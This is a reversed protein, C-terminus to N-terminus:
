RLHDLRPVPRRLREHCEFLSELTVAIDALASDERARGVIQIGFPLGTPGLGCPIVVAPNTILTVGYSIAEWHLYNALSKGNIHSPYPVDHGFPVVSAAPTILLDFREFFRQARRYAKTQEGIARAVERASLGLARELDVRVNPAILKPDREYTAGYAHVLELARLALFTRDADGLDPAAAAVERFCGGFAAAKERFSARVRDDMPAFGLDESIAVRLRSLDVFTPPGALGPQDPAALPDFVARSMMVGLLLRADKAERGMPGEVNFPSWGFARKENAVLGPSPRFGTVACFSAPTRLSGAFDSGTALPVLGAALAVATGGSSAGCTTALDFPNSTTGFLPNTTIAGFGLEPVNTKGVVIAGAARIRAVVHEDKDPVHDKFLPSGQTTALGAVDNID